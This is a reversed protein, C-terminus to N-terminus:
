NLDSSAVNQAISVTLPQRRVPYRLGTKLEKFEVLYNLSVRLRFKVDDGSVATENLGSRDSQPRVRILLRESLTPNTDTATWNEVQSDLRIERTHDGTRYEGSFVAIPSGCKNAIHNATEYTDNAATSVSQEYNPNDQTASTVDMHGTEEWGGTGIARFPCAVYKYKTNKWLQMDQNTAGEPPLDDNYWLLYAWLPEGHNEIFVHYQCSVVHYFNYMGAYYNFWGAQQVTIDPTTPPNLQYLRQTGTADVNQDVIGASDVYCDYPSTMRFGFDTSFMNSMQIMADRKWPLSAFTYDPPGRHVDYVNDIPTEKTGNDNGSGTGDGEGAAKSMNNSPPSNGFSLRKMTNEIDIHRAIKKVPETDPTGRVRKTSSRPWVSSAFTGAAAAGVKTWPVDHVANEVNRRRARWRALNEARLGMQRLVEYRNRPDHHPLRGRGQDGFLM